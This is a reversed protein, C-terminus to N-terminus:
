QHSALLKKVLPTDAARPTPPPRSKEANIRGKMAGLLALCYLAMHHHWGLWDRVEYHAMGFKNKSDEFARQM